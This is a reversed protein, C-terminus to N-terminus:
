RILIKRVANVSEEMADAIKDFSIKTEPPVQIELEHILTSRVPFNRSHSQALMREVEKSVLFDILSQAAEPNPGGKILAVSNPILLTGGDGMDLYRMDISYGAKQAVWVDDTDTMALEVKGAIVARVASSNGDVIQIGGAKIRHLFELSRNSGWLAFMAAVHGRTTGFLPNAIATVSAYETESIQEWHTPLEQPSVRNPDFAIVRARSAMAIWRHQSDKYRTPIDSANPPRYSVLLNRRALLITSFLESSWFVDCRPRGAQAEALIRNVLGTTKGAESDFVVFPEIGTKKKYLQFIERAFVEDVSCYIIPHPTPRGAIPKSERCSVTWVLLWVTFVTNMLLKLKKIIM